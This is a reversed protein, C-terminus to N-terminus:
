KKQLTKYSYLKIWYSDCEICNAVLNAEKDLLEVLDYQDILNHQLLYDPTVHLINAIQSLWNYQQDNLQNLNTLPPKRVNQSAVTLLESKITDKHQKIYKAIEKTVLNTPKVNLKKNVLTITLGQNTLYHIPNILTLIYGRMM